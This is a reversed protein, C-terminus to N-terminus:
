SCNRQLDFDKSSQPNKERGAKNGPTKIGRPPKGRNPAAFFLTTGIDEWGKM